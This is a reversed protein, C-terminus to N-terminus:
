TISDEHASLYQSGKPTIAFVVEGFGRSNKRVNDSNEILGMKKLESLRRWTTNYIMGCSDMLESATSTRAERVLRMLRLHTKGIKMEHVRFADESTQPDSNRFNKLDYVNDQGM